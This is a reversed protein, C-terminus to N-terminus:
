LDEFRQEYAKQIERNIAVSDVKWESDYYKALGHKRLLEQSKSLKELMGSIAATMQKKHNEIGHALYFSTNLFDISDVADQAVQENGPKSKVLDAAVRAISTQIDVIVKPATAAGPWHVLLDHLYEKSGTADIPWKKQALLTLYQHASILGKVEVPEYFSHLAGSSSLENHLSKLTKPTPVIYHTELLVKIGYSELMPVIKNHHYFNPHNKGYLGGVFGASMINSINDFFKVNLYERGKVVVPTISEYFQPQDKLMKRALIQGESLAPNPAFIAECSSSAQAQISFQWVATLLIALLLSKVRM